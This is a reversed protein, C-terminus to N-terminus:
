NKSTHCIACGNVGSGPWSKYDWRLIGDYPTGHARHCSLCMVIADGSQHYVLTNLTDTKDTTAVPSTLSYSNDVGTGGNYATYETSSGANSMDYDTPHRIWVNNGFVGESIEGSGNHFDAHCRGCHGSMTGDPVETEVSRDAGYYKNHSGSITPRYEYSSSELGQVGTTSTPGGLFRYSKAITTGDKWGSMDNSHHSGLMSLTPNDVSQSGHCGYTGACTLQFGSDTGGPPKTGQETDSGVLSAVNHGTRNQIGTSVWYFNGGALTTTNSESGTDGYTPESATLVYPVSGGSNTGQHCGVCNTTLLGSNAVTTYSTTGGTITFAMSSGDQSNHMTHCDVCPGSVKALAPGSIWFLYLMLLWTLKKPDM